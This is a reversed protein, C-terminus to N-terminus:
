KAANKTANCRKCRYSTVLKGEKVDFTKEKEIVWKHFGNKCLTNGKHKVSAKPRKFPVVEGMKVEEGLM